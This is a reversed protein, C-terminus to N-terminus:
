IIIFLITFLPIAVVSLLTTIFILASGLKANGGFELALLTANAATPMASMLVAVNLIFTNSVLPRLILFTIAPIIFLKMAAVIYLRWKRIVELFPITALTAGIALMAGPTTIAGILQTTESIVRPPKFNTLFIILIIVAAILCPNFIERSRIKASKGSVLIIGLTYMLISIPINAIALYFIARSGLIASIIPIGMFGANGFVMAFRCIGRDEKECRLLQPVFFSLAISVAFTAFAVAIFILADSTTSDVSGNMVSSLITCPMTVYIILKSILKNADASILKIKSTLYGIGMTIFLIVLQKVAVDIGM